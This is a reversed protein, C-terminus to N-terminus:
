RSTRRPGAEDIGRLRHVVNTAHRFTTVGIEIFGAGREHMKVIFVGITKIKHISEPKVFDM